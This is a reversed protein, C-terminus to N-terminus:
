GSTYVLKGTQVAPVYSASPEPVNPINVGMEQLKKEVENM